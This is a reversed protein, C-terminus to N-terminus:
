GWLFYDLPTLDCPRPPWNVPGFRSILRDGFTDKLLDITARATHCTAGDQQFWLEQVDHNNLEPIFFNTIMARYRDGNVTINHGEGNKFFYPCIIGGAWLACWVTLKEPHLPTEVYVQCHGTAMTASHYIYRITAPKTVLELGTGSCVWRTPCRHVSFRDLASVDEWQHSTTTLLSPALEPTTWTVQCHNLIVHDTALLGKASIVAELRRPMSEVPHRTTDPAINLWEEQLVSKLQEKSAIQHKRVARELHSWLNEIVSLNPSQPPTNLQNRCHYLLWEKIVFATNKPDNDQQFIFNSGLGLKDASEKLNNQLINLYAMKHMIGDIFVLKGVGSAAMCGWVMVSGGGHKVTPITHKPHHSTNTKRWVMRRGDSGFINFKSENSFIVENWFQQPRGNYGAKRLVRRVTEASVSRGLTNSTSAAIKPASIKSDIKVQNIVRRETISNM